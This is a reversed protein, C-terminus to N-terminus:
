IRKLTRIYEKEKKSVKMSETIKQIAKNHTFNKLSNEKLFPITEEPFERYCISIAWAQAMNVYYYNCQIQEVAKLVLYLYNKNVYYNLLQVLAFRVEFEQSSYLYPQLFEWMEEPQEKALKVTSCVSDCVSWNDIKPIFNKLYEKKEKLDGKAYGLVMGQLMIEEYSDQLANHLYTKWEEKALQSALKRLEPLRVGLINEIGPLLKSIFKQYTVEKKQNLQEKIWSNYAEPKLNVKM